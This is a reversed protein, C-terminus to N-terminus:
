ETILFSWLFNTSKGMIEMPNEMSKQTDGRPKSGLCSIWTGLWQKTTQFWPIKHSEMYQFNSTDYEWSVFEYIPFTMIGVSASMNKLPIPSLWWGTSMQLWKTKLYALHALFWCRQNWEIGTAEIIEHHSPYNIRIGNSYKMLLDVLIMYIYISLNDIEQRLCVIYIHICMHIGLYKGYM